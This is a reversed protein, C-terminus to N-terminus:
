KYYKLIGENIEVHRSQWGRLITPSWKDLQGQKRPPRGPQSNRTSNIMAQATVGSRSQGEVQSESMLLAAIDVEGLPQM